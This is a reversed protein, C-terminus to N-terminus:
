PQDRIPLPKLLGNYSETKYKAREKLLKWTRQIGPHGTTPPRHAAQILRLRLRDNQPVVLRNEQFILLGDRVLYEPHKSVDKNKTLDTLPKVIRSYNKIFRRYYNCLSYVLIDDMFVSCFDDLGDMMIENMYQQFTAPGNCLGFPLVNYRYSGYRTNIKSFYRARILWALTEDILPLPYRNKKTAANLRRYDVYFRFGGNAKRAILIPSGFPARSAEIFGKELNEEIYDKAAALEDTSM